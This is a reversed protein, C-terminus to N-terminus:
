IDMIEFEDCELPMRELGSVYTSRFTQKKELKYSYMKKGTKDCTMHTIRYPEGNIDIVEHTKKLHKCFEFCKHANKPNHDCYKEHRSMAGAGFMKRGCYECVYIKMMETKM